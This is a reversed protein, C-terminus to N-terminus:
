RVDCCLTFVIQQWDSDERDYCTETSPCRSGSQRISKLIATPLLCAPECTMAAVGVSTPLFSEVLQMQSIFTHILDFVANIACNIKLVCVFIDFVGFSFSSLRNM